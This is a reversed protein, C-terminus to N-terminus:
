RVARHSTLSRSATREVAPRNRSSNALEYPRSTMLGDKFSVVAHSHRHSLSTAFSTTLSAGPSRSPVPSRALREALMRLAASAVNSHSSVVSAWSHGQHSLSLSRRNAWDSKPPATCDSHGCIPGVLFCRLQQLQQHPQYPKTPQLFADCQGSVNGKILLLDSMARIQLCPM